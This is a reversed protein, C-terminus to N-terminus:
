HEKNERMDLLSDGPNERVNSRESEMQEIRKRQGKAQELLAEDSNFNEIIADVAAKANFLDDQAFYVDSLLLLTKAVWVPYSSSEQVAERCLQEATSYEENEFYMKAILYRAEATLANNSERTVRNLHNLAEDYQENRYALKGLYFHARNQEEKTSQESELLVSSWQNIDTWQDLRQASRLAGLVAEHRGEASNSSRYLEAYYRLSKNLDEEHNYSIIAAKRLADAYLAGQGEQIVGEYDRLAASYQELASHSEAQYYLAAIRHLGKPFQELYETFGNIARSYKANEYQIFASRYTLSDRSLEDIDMGAHQEVFEVYQDPQGLDNVYIEEIARLAGQVDEATPNHDFVRKYFSLANDVDGQNYSILGLKLLAPTVLPSSQKYEAVLKLLPKSAEDFQNLGMYTDGIELLANDAYNSQPYKQVLDELTLIKEYINGQLGLIIAKQYLAYVFGVKDLEITEEYYDLANSYQNRKFYCDGTRLLADSLINQEIFPDSLNVADLRIGEAADRFHGLALTYEELKLHNYGQLYNAIHISTEEPLQIRKKAITFYKNLTGISKQYMTERHEIDAKWYLAMSRYKQDIPHDLSKDLYRLAESYDDDSLFQLARFYTVKQYAERIDPTQQPLQEIIDIARAYDRTNLFIQKLIQQSRIYYESDPEFRLLAQVAERDFGLEASLKAYQFAAEARLDPDTDLRAANAFATRASQKDELKLYCDGLYFNAQQGLSNQRGSITKFRSTADEYNGTQYAAYGMMYIDEARMDGTSEAYTSFHELANTYAKKEYYAQALLLHIEGKNRISHDDLLSPAYNIVADYDGQVFYIATLYYPVHSSYTRSHGANRLANIARDYHELYYQAMGFYYNTPYYYENKVNRTENFRATAEQFEKRVFHCYGIKFNAESQRETQIDKSPLLEFYRIAEEYDRKNYFYNGMEFVAETVLPDPRNQEMFSQIHQEGDTTGRALACQAAMLEAQLRFQRNYPNYLPRLSNLVQEFHTQAAGYLGQDYLEMGYEFTRDPQSYVSTQQGCVPNFWSISLSLALVVLYIIHKMWYM